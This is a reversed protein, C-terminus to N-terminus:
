RVVVVSIRCEPRIMSPIRLPQLVSRSETPRNENGVGSGVEYFSMGLVDHTRCDVEEGTDSTEAGADVFLPIPDKQAKHTHRLRISRKGRQGENYM